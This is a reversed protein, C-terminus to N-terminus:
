VEAPRVSVISAFETTRKWKNYKTPHPATRLWITKLGEHKKRNNLAKINPFGDESNTGVLLCPSSELTALAQTIAEQKTFPKKEGTVAESSGVTKKTADESM